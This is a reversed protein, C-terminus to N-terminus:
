TDTNIIYNFSHLHESYICSLKSLCVFALISDQSCGFIDVRHVASQKKDTDYATSLPTSM